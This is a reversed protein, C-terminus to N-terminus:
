LFDVGMKILWPKSLHLRGMSTYPSHCNDHVLQYSINTVVISTTTESFPARRSISTLPGTSWTQGKQGQLVNCKWVHTWM